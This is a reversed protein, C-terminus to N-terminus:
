TDEEALERFQQLFKIVSGHLSAYLELCLEANREESAALLRGALASGREAGVNALSGKLTHATEDIVTYNKQGVAQNLNELHLPLDEQLIELVQSILSTEEGFLIHMRDRNFDQLDNM